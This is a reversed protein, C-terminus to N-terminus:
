FPCSPILKCTRLATQRGVKETSVSAKIRSPSPTRFIEMPMARSRRRAKAEPWIFSYTEDAAATVCLHLSDRKKEGYGRQVDTARKSSIGDVDKQRATVYGRRLRRRTPFISGLTPASVPDPRLARKPRGDTPTLLQIFFGFSPADPNKEWGGSPLKRVYIGDQINVPLQLKRRETGSGLTLRSSKFM